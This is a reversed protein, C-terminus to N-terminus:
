SKSIAKQVAQNWPFCKLQKYWCVRSIDKQLASVKGSSGFQNESRSNENLFFHGYCTPNKGQTEKLSSIWYDKWMLVKGANIRNIQNIVQIHRKFM